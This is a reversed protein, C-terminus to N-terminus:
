KLKLMDHANYELGNDLNVRANNLDYEWVGRKLVNRFYFHIM